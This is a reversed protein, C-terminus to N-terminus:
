LTAPPNRDEAYSQNKKTCWEETLRGIDLNPLAEHFTDNIALTATLPPTVAIPSSSYLNKPLDVSDESASQRFSEQDVSENSSLTKV